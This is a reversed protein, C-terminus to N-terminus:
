SFAEIKEIISKEHHEIMSIYADTEIEAGKNYGLIYYRFVFDVAKVKLAPDKITHMKRFIADWRSPLNIIPKQQSKAYQKWEPYLILSYVLQYLEATYTDLKNGSIVYENLLAKKQSIWSILPSPFSYRTPHFDEVFFIKSIYKNDIPYYENFTRSSHIIADVDDIDFEFPSEVLMENEYNILSLFYGIVDKRIIKKTRKVAETERNKEIDSLGLKKVNIIQEDLGQFIFDQLQKKTKHGLVHKKIEPNKNLFTKEYIVEQFVYGKELLNNKNFIIATDGHGLLLPMGNTFSVFDNREITRDELITSLAEFGCMHVFHCM